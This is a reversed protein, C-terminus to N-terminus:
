EIVGDAAAVYHYEYGGSRLELVATRNLRRKRGQGVDPVTSRAALRM